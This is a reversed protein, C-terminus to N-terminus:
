DKDRKSTRDTYREQTQMNMSQLARNYMSEFVPIREDDKLYSMAELMSAYFLVDPFRQTLINEDNDETIYSPSQLYVLQYKYAKDPTPSIFYGEYASGDINNVIPTHDSYFLPPNDSNSESANPWYARCVEYTRLYLFNNGNFASVTDGYIFSITKNWNDPKPITANNRVFTGVISVQEFGIDKAERWIRAQAQFIFYPINLTYQVLAEDSQNSYDIIQQTLTNYNMNQYDKGPM